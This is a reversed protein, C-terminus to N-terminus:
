HETKVALIMVVVLWETQSGDPAWILREGTEVSCSQVVGDLTPVAGGLTEYTDFAGIVAGIYGLGDDDDEAETYLRLSWRTTLDVSGVMSETRDQDLNVERRDFGDFDVTVAPPATDRGERDHVELGDITRLVAVIAARLSPVTSPRIM